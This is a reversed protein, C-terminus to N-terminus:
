WLVAPDSGVDSRAFQRPIYAPSRPLGRLLRGPPAWEPRCGVPHHWRVGLAAWHTVTGGPGAPRCLHAGLTVPHKSWLVRALARAQRPLPRLPPWPRPGPSPLSEPPAPGRAMSIAAERHTHHFTGPLPEDGKHTRSERSTSRCLWELAPPAASRSCAARQSPAARPSPNTSVYISAPS